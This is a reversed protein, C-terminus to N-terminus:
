AGLAIPTTSWVEPVTLSGDLYLGIMRVRVVASFLRLQTAVGPTFTFRFETGEVGDLPITMTVRASSSTPIAIGASSPSAVPLRIALAGAPMDTELQVKSAGNSQYQITLEKFEQCKQIAVHNKDGVAAREM